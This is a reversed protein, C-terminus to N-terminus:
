HQIEISSLDYHSTEYAALNVAVVQAAVMASM